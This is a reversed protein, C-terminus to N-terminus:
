AAGQKSNLKKCIWAEGATSFLAQSYGLETQRLKGLGREVFWTSFQRGRKVSKNYVGLDDLLKNLRYASMGHKQAVQGANMLTDRDVLKDFFEVKPAQEELLKAQNAALQLAEAFSQPIQPYPRKAQLTELEQWRDVLRATFEPSLQAVVVISDRKGQEGSFLYEVSPRGATPKEEIQPSTIVGSEILKDITRKVNDHRKATLEAIERSSMTPEIQAIANM